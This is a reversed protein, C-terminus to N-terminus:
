TRFLDHVDQEGCEPCISGDTSAYAWEFTDRYRGYTWMKFFWEQWLHGNPCVCWVIKRDEPQARRAEEYIM